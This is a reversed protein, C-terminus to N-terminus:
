CGAPKFLKNNEALSDIFEDPRKKLLEALLCIRTKDRIHGPMDAITNQVQVLVKADKCAVIVFDANAKSFDKQINDKEHVATMAVEIAILKENAEIAVDVFKGGRNLEIVPNFEEFNQATLHQFLVHEYGAGKGYFKKEQIGLIKYAEPLLVPYKPRGRGFTVQLLKVLNRKECEKAIRSGTGAPFGALKQIETVTKKYQWRSATMLWTKADDSVRPKDPKEQAHKVPVYRPQTKFASLIRANNEKVFLENIALLSM